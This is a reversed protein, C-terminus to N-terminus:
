SERLVSVTRLRAVTVLSAALSLSSAVVVLGALGAIGGPALRILPPSLTFLPTLVRTTITTMALGIPLGLALSAAVTVVGEVAPPVLVQRTTAGLSRLVAYERRRELILFGGLLAVGLAAIVLTGTTEIRSLGALNLSALTSQEKALQDNFTLVTWSAATGAASRLRTAVDGAAHGPAVRALYFDPAPVGALPNGTAPLALAATNIILDAGPAAPAISSFMAIAHLTVPTPKGGPVPVTLNVPDGVLVNFDTAFTKSILVGTADSALVGLAKDRGGPVTPGNPVTAAFSTPDIAYASRKDAGVGLTVVRVPTSAAIDPSALPPVPAPKIQAPTVRSIPGSASSQRPTSQRM